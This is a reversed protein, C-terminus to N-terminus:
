CGALAVLLYARLPQAPLGELLDRSRSQPSSM